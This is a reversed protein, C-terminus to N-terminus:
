WITYARRETGRHSLNNVFPKNMFNLPLTDSQNISYTNQMSKQGNNEIWFKNYEM